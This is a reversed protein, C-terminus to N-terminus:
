VRMGSNASESRPPMGSSSRLITSCVIGILSSNARWAVASSGFLASANTREAIGIQHLLPHRRGLVGEFPRKRKIRVLGVPQVAVALKEGGHSAYLLRKRHALMQLRDLREDDNGTDPDWSIASNTYLNDGPRYTPDFMPVPNGTGAAM